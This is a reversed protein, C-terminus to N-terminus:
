PDPNMSLSRPISGGGECVKLPSPGCPSCSPTHPPAKKPLPSVAQREDGPHLLGRQAGPLRLTWPVSLCCLTPLLSSSSALCQSPEQTSVTPPSHPCSPPPPGPGKLKGLFPRRAECGFSSAGQCHSSLLLCESPSLALPNVLLRPQSM